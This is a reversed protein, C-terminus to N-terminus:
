FTTIGLFVDPFGNLDNNVINSAASFYAVVHGQATLVPNLSQANGALGTSSVSVLATKQMCGAGLGNCTDRVYANEIGNTNTTALNTALSSFAVFQATSGMNPSECLANAPSSGDTGVSVLTTM